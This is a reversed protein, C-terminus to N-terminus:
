IKRKRRRQYQMRRTERMLEEQIKSEKIANTARAIMSSLGLNQEESSEKVLQNFRSKSITVEVEDLGFRKKYREVAQKDRAIYEQAQWDYIIGRNAIEMISKLAKNGSIFKGFAFDSMSNILKMLYNYQSKSKGVNAYEISKKVNSLFAKRQKQIITRSSDKLNKLSRLNGSLWTDYIRTRVEGEHAKIDKWVMSPFSSPAEYEYASGYREKIYRAKSQAKRIDRKYNIFAKRSSFTDPYLEHMLEYLNESQKSLKIKAM